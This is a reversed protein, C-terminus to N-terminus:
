RLGRAIPTFSNCIVCAPTVRHPHWPDVPVVSAVARAARTVVLERGLDRCGTLQKLGEFLVVNAPQQGHGRTREGRGSPRPLRRSPSIASSTSALQDLLAKADQLVPTDFGETFWNYVPALLAQAEHDAGHEHWLTLAMFEGPWIKVHRDLIEWGTSYTVLDPVVGFDSFRQLGTTPWARACDLVGRV